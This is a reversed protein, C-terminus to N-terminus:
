KFIYAYYILTQYEDVAEELKNIWLPAYKLILEKDEESVSEIMMQLETKGYACISCTNQQHQKTILEILVEDSLDINLMRDTKRLYDICIGRVVLFVIAELRYEPLDIFRDINKIIRLFSDHVIDECIEKSGIYKQATWFMMTKFKVYLKEIFEEKEIQSHIEDMCDYGREKKIEVCFYNDVNILSLYKSLICCITSTKFALIMYFFIEDM